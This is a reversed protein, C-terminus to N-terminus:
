TYSNGVCTKSLCIIYLWVFNHQIVKIEYKLIIFEYKLIIFEYKLIIFEYKLIVFLKPYIHGLKEVYLLIVKNILFKLKAFELGFSPCISLHHFPSQKTFSTSFSPPPICHLSPTNLTHSPPVYCILVQLSPTNLYQLYKLIWHKYM